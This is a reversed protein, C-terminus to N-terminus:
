LLRSPTRTLAIFYAAKEAEPKRSETIVIKPLSKKLADARKTRLDRRGTERRTM